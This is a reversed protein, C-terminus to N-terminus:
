LRETLVGSSNFVASNKRRGLNLLLRKSALLLSGGSTRVMEKWRRYTYYDVYTRKPSEIQTGVTLLRSRKEEIKDTVTFIYAERGAGSGYSAILIKVGPRAIDLISALGAPSSGSYLNGV